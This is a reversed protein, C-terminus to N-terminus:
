ILNKETKLLIAASIKKNLDTISNHGLLDLMRKNAYVLKESPELKVRFIGVPIKDIFSSISDTEKVKNDDAALRYLISALSVTSIHKDIIEDYVVLKEPSLSDEFAKLLIITVGANRLRDIKDGPIQHDSTVIITGAILDFSNYESTETITKFQNHKNLFKLAEEIKLKFDYCNELIIDTM